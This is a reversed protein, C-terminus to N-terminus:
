PKPELRSFERELAKVIKKMAQDRQSPTIFGHLSMRIMAENHKDFNEAVDDPLRPFQEKFSPAGWGFEVGASM